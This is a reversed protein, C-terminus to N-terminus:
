SYTLSRQYISHVRSAVNACHHSFSSPIFFAILVIPRDGKETLEADTDIFCHQFPLSDVPDILPPIAALEYVYTRLSNVIVSLQM